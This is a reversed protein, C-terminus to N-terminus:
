HWVPSRDIIASAAWLGQVIQENLSDAGFAAAGGIVIAPVGLENWRDRAAQFKVLNTFTPDTFSNAAIQHISQVCSGDEVVGLRELHQGAMPALEEIACDHRWEIAFTREGPAAPGADSLRYVPCDDDVVTMVGPAGVLKDEPVDVWSLATRARTLQLDIGAAGFVQEPTSGLVLPGRVEVPGQAELQLTVGGPTVALSSLPGSRVIAVASSSGLRELLADVVQWSASGSVTHFRRDPRYSPGPGASAEFLTQPHFIAAWVKRRLALPVDLLGGPRVKRALPAGFLRHFSPGHNMLMAHSSQHRWPDWPTAGGLVGDRGILGVAHASERGIAALEEHTVLERLSTLDVTFGFDEAVVGRLSLQPAPARVLGEGLLDELYRRVIAQHPRHGSPGPVYEGLPVPQQGIGSDDYDLELLRAGLPLRRGQHAIGRFGSGLHDSVLIAVSTGARALRDACVLSAVSGGIVTVDHM